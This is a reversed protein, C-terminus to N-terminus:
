GHAARGERDEALHAPVILRWDRLLRGGRLGRVLYQSRLPRRRRCEDLFNRPTSWAERHLDSIWGAAAWLTREDYIELVLELLRFDLMPLGAISELLEDLGGVRHPQRLGEVVTREPGTTVLHRTARPVHRTAVTQARRSRLATPTSLFLVRTSAVRLPARRRDCHLTCEQWVSHAVGLLELASHYAFVGDPRAAAAVLFPDPVFREPDVGHPVAAYLERAVGKVRGRALHRKLQNRAAARGKGNGRAAALEGLTFVPSRALFAEFDFRHTV